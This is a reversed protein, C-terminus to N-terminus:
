FLFRQLLAPSARGTSMRRTRVILLPSFALIIALSWGVVVPPAVVHPVSALTREIPPHTSVCVACTAGIAAVCVLLLLVSVLVPLRRRLRTHAFVTALM